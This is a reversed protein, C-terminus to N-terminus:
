RIKRGPTWPVGIADADSELKDLTAGIADLDTRVSDFEQRAIDMSRKYTGPVDFQSNWHLFLRSVRQKVSWAAAENRSTVSSDGFLKVKLEDLSSQIADLQQQLPEVDATTRTFSVNLLALRNGFDAFVEETAAVAQSLQVTESQFALVQEPSSSHEPSHELRKVKFSQTGLATLEGQSRKYLTATFTGPVVLPGVPPEDWPNPDKPELDALERNPLRLNWSIRHLGKAVPGDVRQVVNGAQDKIEVFVLPKQERDEARLADWNPYPTDGREQEVKREKERRQQKLTKLGDRLYYTLVAGFPPNESVFLEAGQAGTNSKKEIYLWADKVPFLTAQSNKLTSANTRLPSYDDLVYISRGFTGVVLDSEREQIELDRVSITPFNGTMKHWTGGGDQTFFLGFETGVFLLNPDVHDGTITHASGREPLNNAISKWSKGRNDTKYVYPKYDGRKHNDFVAYAVDADHWSVFIDEVLTPESLGPFKEVRTWNEGNDESINIVGDDTGVFLLGQQLPSEAIAIAAGWRSTSNNKAVSDVSWVRDEIKLKNRDIQRTLNPSIKRWNDGRDDSVFLYETGYYIRKSDHPSILLPTSWNFNYDAEGSEPFPMIYAHEGTRRDWRALGGYQFQTYVINPDEPDIQPEYGDGGITTVWDANVIGQKNITRSPVGLSNNDQTGGYINYFPEDNDPEIRYFQGFPLNQLQRFVQGRDWTEYVGGDGGIYLHDTNDPDIWIAHDDVHREDIGIKSWTKGGDETVHTFTNPSYVREPNKPDVILESYYQPSTVAYSSRKEWNEGFDTSRYIGQEEKSGEIIAYVMGPSSPAGALGIRGMDDESPLGSTIKRWNEGADDSKYIASGPGGNLLAWIRRHRQYTSVILSDPNEPNIVLENAGTFEDVELIKKWSDGGDMSKYLGRDGGASWLPGQATVYVIKSDRPDFKIQGIHGSDKLGVNKWTKGGDISKYVGDGYGVSRQSNNEGTGVWVEEPNDPNLVIWGTAYSGEHDFIPTWTTGRNTTKWVGSSSTAVYFINRSEPHFAFDSIRGSIVAAGISRLAIGALPHGEETEAKEATMGVPALLLGALAALVILLYQKQKV